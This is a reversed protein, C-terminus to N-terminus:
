PAFFIPNTVGFALRGPHLPDLTQPQGKRSRITADYAGRAHFIVWDTGDPVGLSGLKPDKKPCERLVGIERSQM